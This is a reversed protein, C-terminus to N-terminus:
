VAGAQELVDHGPADFPSLDEEIVLIVLGEEFPKDDDQFLGLGLTVGPSQNRVM